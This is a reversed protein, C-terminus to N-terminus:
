ADLNLDLANDSYEYSESACSSDNLYLSHPRHKRDDDRIPCEIPEDFYVNARHDMIMHLRENWHPYNRNLYNVRAANTAIVNLWLHGFQIKEFPTEWEERTLHYDPYDARAVIQALIYTETMDDFQISILDLFPWKSTWSKEGDTWLGPALELSDNYSVQMGWGPVEVLVLEHREFLSKLERIKPLDTELVDFDADNDHPILGGNRVAGLLTGGQITYKIQTEELIQATIQVINYLQDVEYDTLREKNLRTRMINEHNM